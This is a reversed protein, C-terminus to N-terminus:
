GDQPAVPDELIRLDRGSAECVETVWGVVERYAQARMYPGGHITIESGEIRIGAEHLHAEPIRAALLEPLLQHANRESIRALELQAWDVLVVRDYAEVLHLRRLATFDSLDVECPQEGLFAIETLQEHLGLARFRDFHAAHRIRVSRLARHADPVRTLEGLTLEVVTAWAPDERRYRGSAPEAAVPFGREFRLTSLPAQDALTGAFRARLAASPPDASGALQSRIFAGRVDGHEMLYDALVQRPLDSAPSRYVEFLLAAVTDAPDSVAVAPSERVPAGIRRIQVVGDRGRTAVAFPLFAEDVDQTQHSGERCYSEFAAIHLDGSSGPRPSSPEGHACCTCRHADVYCTHPWGIPAHSVIYIGHVADDAADDWYQAVALTVSQYGRDLLTVAADRLRDLEDLRAQELEDMM